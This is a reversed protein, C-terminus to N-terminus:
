LLLASLLLLAAAAVRRWLALTALRTEGLGGRRLLEHPHVVFVLSAAASLSRCVSM